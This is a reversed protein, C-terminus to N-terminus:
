RVEALLATRVSEFFARYAPTRYDPYTWPMPHFAGDHFSLTVEAYIGDRLYIRHAHNKTTALVLKSATVYGPDLNVPRPVSRDAAAFEDEIANTRRKTEALQEPAYDGGFAYFRRLLDRGMRPAYYDTFDFPLVDSTMDPPGFCEALISAARDFLAVNRSLMGVILRCPPPPAPEAM